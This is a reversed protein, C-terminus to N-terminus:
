IKLIKRNRFKSIDQNPRFTSPKNSTKNVCWYVNGYIDNNEFIFGYSDGFDCAEALAANESISGNSIAYKRVIEAMIKIDMKNM